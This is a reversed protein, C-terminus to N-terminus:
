RVRKGGAIALLPRRLANLDNFPNGRVAFLDAPAGRVLSGQPAAGLARGAESTAAALTQLRTLGAAGLLRLEDVDIGPPISQRVPYDTGYLLRGGAATFARANELKAPCRDLVHLRAVIRLRKRAADQMAQPDARDRPLHALEDVGSALAQKMQDIREVHATVDRKRAHAAVVIAQLQERTLM